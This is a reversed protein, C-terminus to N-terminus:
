RDKTERPLLGIREAGAGRVADLGSVVQGYPVSGSARVFVTTDQRMSIVDRLRAELAAATGRPEGALGCGDPEIEVVLAMPRPREDTPAHRPSPLAADLGRHALPTVVMFIILLVLMVDILPTVNIDAAPMGRETM